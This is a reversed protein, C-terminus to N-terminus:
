PPKPLRGAAQEAALFEAEATTLVDPCVVPIARAPDGGERLCVSGALRLREGQVMDVPCAAEEGRTIIAGQDIRLVVCREGTKEFVFRWPPRRVDPHWSPETTAVDAPAAAVEGAVDSECAGLAALAAGLLTRSARPRAEGM